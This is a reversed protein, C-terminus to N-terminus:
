SDGVQGVGRAESLPHIRDLGRHSAEIQLLELAPIADSTNRSPIAINWHGHSCKMLLKGQM